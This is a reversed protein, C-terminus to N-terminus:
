STGVQFLKLLFGVLYVDNAILLFFRNFTSRVNAGCGFILKHLGPASLAHELGINPEILVSTPNGTNSVRLV